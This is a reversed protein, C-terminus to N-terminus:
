AQECSNSVLAACLVCFVLKRKRTEAGPDLLVFIRVVIIFFVWVVSFVCVVFRQHPPLFSPPFRHTKIPSPRYVKEHASTVRRRGGWGCMGLSCWYSLFGSGQRLTFVPETSASAVPQPTSTTRPWPAAAPSPEAESRRQTNLSLQQERGIM